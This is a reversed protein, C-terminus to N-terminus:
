VDDSWDELEDQLHDEVTGQQVADVSLGKLTNALSDGGGEAVHQEQGKEHM